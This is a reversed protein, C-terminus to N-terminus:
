GYYHTDCKANPFFKKLRKEINTKFQKGTENDRISSWEEGVYYDDGEPHLVEGILDVAYDYENNLAKEAEEINNIDEDGKILAKLLEPTALLEVCIGYICFSSSSSNTVFGQRVKM